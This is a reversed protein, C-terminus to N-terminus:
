DDFEITNGPLVTHLTCEKAKCKPCRKQSGHVLIIQECRSCWKKVKVAPKGKRSAIVIHTPPM